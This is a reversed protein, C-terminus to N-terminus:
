SATRQIVIPKEFFYDQGADHWQVRVKWLGARLARVSVSQRGAADLGLQVDSDQGADSPRYFTVTGSIEKQKVSPLSVTVLDGHLDYEITASALVPTSRQVRDIQQQFRIEQDYYDERVLDMKQRCAFIVFGVMYTIFVSFIVILAVPWRNQPQPFLRM